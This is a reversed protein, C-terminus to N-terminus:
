AIAGQVFLAVVCYAVVKQAPVIALLAASIAAASWGM